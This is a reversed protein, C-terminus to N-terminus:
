GTGPPLSSNMVFAAIKWDAGVKKWVIVFPGRDEFRGSDRHFRLTFNGYYYALDGSSATDKTAPRLDFQAGPIQMMGLWLEAIKNHGEAAEYTPLVFKGNETFLKAIGAADQKAMLQALQQAVGDIKQNELVPDPM